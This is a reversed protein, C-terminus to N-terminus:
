AQQSIYSREALSHWAAISDRFRRWPKLIAAFRRNEAAVGDLASETAAKFAEMLESSFERIHAFEAIQPLVKANLVDAQAVSNLNAAMAATEVASQYQSPLSNWRELSVVVDTVACPEWWGPYYYYLDGELQDFGLSMDDAPGVFEAADLDGGRLAPLIDAVELMVQEVGLSQLVRGALGPIRMRLGQLDSVTNLEKTFWGGMQCGTGGAPFAITGHEEAYFDNLMDLGKDHYLWANQQRQTLGFPVATGFLQVPNLQMYYYSPTHGIDVTLDSVRPLVELGGVLEGAPRPNIKFRGETLEGVKDAFFQSAAFLSELTAPWSVAMDWAIEPREPEIAAESAADEPVTDDEGGCAALVASAAAFGAM